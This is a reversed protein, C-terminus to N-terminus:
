VFGGGDTSFYKNAADVTFSTLSTCKSFPGGNHLETVEYTNTGSVISIPIHFTTVEDFNDDDLQMIKVKGPSEGEPESLIKYRIKDINNYDEVYIDDGVAADTDSSMVPAIALIALAVALLPIFRLVKNM